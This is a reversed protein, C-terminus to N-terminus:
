ARENSILVNYIKECQVRKIIEEAKSAGTLHDSLWQAAQKHNDGYIYISEGFNFGPIVSVLNASACNKKQKERNQNDNRIIEGDTDVKKLRYM